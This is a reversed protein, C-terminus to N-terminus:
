PHPYFGWFLITVFHFHQHGVMFHLYCLDVGPVIRKRLFNGKVSYQQAFQKSPLNKAIKPVVNQLGQPNSSEHQELM